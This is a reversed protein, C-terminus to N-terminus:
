RRSGRREARRALLMAGDSANKAVVRSVNLKVIQLSFYTELKRQTWVAAQLQPVQLRSYWTSSSTYFFSVVMQIGALPVDRRQPPIGIESSKQNRAKRCCRLSLSLVSYVKTSIFTLCPSQGTLTSAVGLRRTPRTASRSRRSVPRLRLTLDHLASLAKFAGVVHNRSGQRRAAM